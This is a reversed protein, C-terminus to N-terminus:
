LKFIFYFILRDRKWEANALMKTENKKLQEEQSMKFAKNQFKGHPRRDDTEDHTGKIM